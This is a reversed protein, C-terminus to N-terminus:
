IVRGLVKLSWMGGGTRIIDRPITGRKRDSVLLRAPSPFGCTMTGSIGMETGRVFKKAGGLLASLTRRCSVDRVPWTMSVRSVNRARGNVSYGGGGGACGEWAVGM